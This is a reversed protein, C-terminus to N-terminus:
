YSVRTKKDVCVHSSLLGHLFAHCDALLCPEFADFIQWPCGYAKTFLSYFGVAVAFPQRDHCSRITLLSDSYKHGILLSHVVLPPLLRHFFTRSITCCRNMFMMLGASLLRFPWCAFVCMSGTKHARQRSVSLMPHSGSAPDLELVPSLLGDTFM